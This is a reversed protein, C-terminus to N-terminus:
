FRVGAGITFRLAGGFFSSDHVRHDAGFSPGPYQLFRGAVDARIFTATTADIEMGGGLEYATLHSDSGMTCALPPPYIAICAFVRPASGIDLFGAAAKAFPRLRGMKPGVTVGFLGEIRNGSFATVTDPPFESPYWALDADIGILSIPKFTFRGGVGVDTGDFESWQSTAVHAAAEFHQARAAPVGIAVVIVVAIFLRM